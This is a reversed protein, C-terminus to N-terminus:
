KKTRRSSRWSLRAATCRSIMLCSQRCDWITDMGEMNEVQASFTDGENSQTVNNLNYSNVDSAISKENNYAEAGLGSCGALSLISACLAALLFHKQSM